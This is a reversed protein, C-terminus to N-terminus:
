DASRAEHIDEVMAIVEQTVDEHKWEVEMDTFGFNEVDYDIMSEVAERLSVADDIIFPEVGNENEYWGAFM